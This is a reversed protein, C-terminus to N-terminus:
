AGVERRRARARWARGRRGHDFRGIWVPRERMAVSLFIPVDRERAEAFAEEGWEFWDVPDDAHQVLYPATADDLRNPM